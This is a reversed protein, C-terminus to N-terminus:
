EGVYYPGKPSIYNWVTNPSVLLRESIQFRDLGQKHLAVIRDRHRHTRPNVFHDRGKVVMDDTNDQVTGCSLHEINICRPNDCSHLIVHYKPIPGKLVTWVLRHVRWKFGYRGGVSVYCYGAPIPALHCELCEGVKVANALLWDAYDKENGRSERAM